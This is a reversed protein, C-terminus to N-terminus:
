FSCLSHFAIENHIDFKPKQEKVFDWAAKEALKKSAMYAVVPNATLAFEYTVPNWDQETYTHGVLLNNSFHNKNTQKNIKNETKKEEKTTLQLPSIGKAHDLLAVFSSTIVVRKVASHKAAEKLINLTGNIAPDLLELKNSEKV